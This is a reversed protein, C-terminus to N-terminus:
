IRVLIKLLLEKNICNRNLRLKGILRFIISGIIVLLDMHM